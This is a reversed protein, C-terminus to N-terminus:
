WIPISSGPEAVGAAIRAAQWGSAMADEDALTANGHDTSATLSNGTGAYWSANGVQDVNKGSVKWGENGSVVVNTSAEHIYILSPGAAAAPSGRFQGSTAVKNSTVNVHHCNNYPEIGVHHTRAVWNRLIDFYGGGTESIIGCGNTKHTDWDSAMCGDILNDALVLPNGSAGSTNALNIVDDCCSLVTDASDTRSSPQNVFRNWEVRGGAAVTGSLQVAHARWAAAASEARYGALGPLGTGNSKLGNFNRGDNRRIILSSITAANAIIGGGGIFTCNEIQVVSAGTAIAWSCVADYIDPNRGIFVCNRVLLTGGFMGFARYTFDFRCNLLEVDRTVNVIVCYGSTAGRQRFNAGDVRYLGSGSNVSIGATNGVVDYDWSFQPTPPVYLRSRRRTMITASASMM